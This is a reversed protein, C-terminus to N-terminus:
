VLSQIGAIKDWSAKEGANSKAIRGHIRLHQAISLAADWPMDIRIAGYCLRVVKGNNAVSVDQSKLREALKNWRGQRKKVANLDTLVGMSRLSPFRTANVGLVIRRAIRGEVMLMASVRLALDFEMTFKTAGFALGVLEGEHSVDM